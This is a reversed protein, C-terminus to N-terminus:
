QRSKVRIMGSAKFIFQNPEPHMKRGMFCYDPAYYLIDLWYYSFILFWVVEVVGRITNAGSSMSSSEKKDKKSTLISSSGIASSCCVLRRAGTNRAKLFGM